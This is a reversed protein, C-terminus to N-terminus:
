KETLQNKIHTILAINKEYNMRIPGLLGFMGIHGNLKYRVVITSCIPSFPNKSGLFIQPEFDIEDFVKDIIEEMRDIIASVDYIMTPSFEPQSLFNAIGTYYLNHRHFAWFVATNATEALAKAAQKFNAEEKESLIDSFNKIELESLKKAKITKLYYEYARETPIRGASTHPQIIYGENELNAMENRVTAPSVGLKYKNVLIESGVPAGTKIHEKILAFLIQETRKEM